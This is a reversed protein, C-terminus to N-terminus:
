SNIFDLYKAVKTYVGVGGCNETAQENMTKPGRGNNSGIGWSDHAMIYYWRNHVSWQSQGSSTRWLGCSM